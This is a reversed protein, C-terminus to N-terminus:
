AEIVENQLYKQITEVAEYFGRCVAAAYGQSRLYEVWRRQNESVKGGQQRKLEIYLGHWAGRPAPLCIDPVGPRVGQRRLNAAEIINRSGGNPIHYLYKLDPYKGEQCASWEFLAAQDTNERPTINARQRM